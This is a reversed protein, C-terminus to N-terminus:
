STRQSALLRDILASVQNEPLNTFAFRLYQEQGEGFFSGPLSVINFLRALRQAVQKGSMDFPHRVYAFYAGASLLEFDLGPHAFASRLAAARAILGNAVDRKWTQLNEIGFQAALQSVHPACIVSCDQVKTLASVLSDGAVVAGVRYGALSYAKSFSYLHVFDDRWHPQQFLAHPPDDGPVFDRYTEDVILAIGYDRAIAYCDAICQQSYVAGTPNNPTVLVIARTRKSLRRRIDELAPEITRPDFPMYIGTVGRMALWMRHNFYCPLPVIVEDGPACLSDIVACFAQNCGATIVVDDAAVDGAYVLRMETALAERLAPLGRIDTYTSAEGRAIVGALYDRLVPAPLDAPVAQCLDILDTTNNEDTWSWAEVIPAPACDRVDPNIQM